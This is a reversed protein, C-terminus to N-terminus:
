TEDWFGMRGFKEIRNKILEDNVKILATTHKMEINLISNSSCLITHFQFCM